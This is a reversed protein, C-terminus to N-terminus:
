TRKSGIRKTGLARVIIARIGIINIDGNADSYLPLLTNSKPLNRGALIGAMEINIATLLYVSKM